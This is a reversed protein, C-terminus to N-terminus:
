WQFGFNKAVEHAVANLDRRANNTQQWRPDKKLQREFEWLPVSAQKGDVNTGQMAGRITQDFLDIDAANL